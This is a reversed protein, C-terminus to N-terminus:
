TSSKNTAGADTGPFESLQRYISGLKKGYQELSYHQKVRKINAEVIAPENPDMLHDLHPNRQFIDTKDVDGKIMQKIFSMQEEAIIDKFDKVENRDEVLLTDYLNPFHFGLSIFDDVVYPLRRGIVPTGYMWPEMFAMGFGERVSTTICFDSGKMLTPFDVKTGVEFHIPLDYKAAFNQWKEYDRMEQPNKPPLTVLWHFQDEFLVSLLILEGINKRRIVRVPYTVIRKGPDLHLENCLKEKAEEREKVEPVVVQQIPNPLYHIHEEPLHYSSIRKLDYSNLVAFRYNELTPYLVGKLPENFHVEIIDKLFKWNNPRDEAFDHCHNIMKLGRQALYSVAYTLVPNKGLNLNHAHLVDDKGIHYYLFGLLSHFLYNVDVDDLDEEFLYNLKPNEIVTVGQKELTAKDPCYGTVVQLQTHPFQARLSEIQSEIVRAVGGPHLHYHLIHIKMEKKKTGFELGATPICKLIDL